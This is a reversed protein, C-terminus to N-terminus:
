ENIKKQKCVVNIKGDTLSAKVVALSSAVEKLFSTRQMWVPGPTNCGGEPGVTKRGRM